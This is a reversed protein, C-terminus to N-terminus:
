DVVWITIGSGTRALEEGVHHQFLHRLGSFSRRGVVVTGYDREKATKLIDRAVHKPDLPEDFQVQLDIVDIGKEALSGRLSQLLAKGKRIGQREMEQYEGAREQSVREEIEPDESGGWELMRPPLAFHVLGVHFGRSGGIMEVVYSVAGRSADSADAAILIRKSNAMPREQNFNM